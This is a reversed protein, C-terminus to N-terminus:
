FAFTLHFIFLYYSWFFEILFHETQHWPVCRCMYWCLFSLPIINYHCCWLLIQCGLGDQAVCHSGTELFVPFFSPFHLFPSFLHFLFLFLFHPLFSILFARASVEAAADLAWTMLTLSLSVKGLVHNTFCFYHHSHVSDALSGQKVWETVTPSIQWM